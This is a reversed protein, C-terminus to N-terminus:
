SPLPQFNDSPEGKENADSCQANDKVQHGRYDRDPPTLGLAAQDHRRVNEEAPAEDGPAKYEKPRSRMLM